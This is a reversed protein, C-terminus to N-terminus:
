TKTSKIAIGQPLRSRHEIKSNSPKFQWQAPHPRAPYRLLMTYQTSLTAAGLLQQALGTIAPTNPHASLTIFMLDNRGDANSTQSINHRCMGATQTAGMYKYRGVRSSGVFFDPVHLGDSLSNCDVLGRSRITQFIQVTSVPFTGWFVDSASRM